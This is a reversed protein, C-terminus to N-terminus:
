HVRGHLGARESERAIHRANLAHKLGADPLDVDAHLLGRVEDLAFPSPQEPFAPSLDKDYFISIQGLQAQFLSTATM